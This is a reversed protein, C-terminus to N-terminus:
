KIEFDVTIYHETGEGPESTNKVIRYKGPKLKGYLWKWNINMELINNENVYYGQTTWAYNDIIPKLAEWSSDIFEDIRYSVGYINNKSSVDKIIITAGENTLTDEKINMTVGDLDNMKIICKDTLSNINKAVFIDKIGDYSNCVITYFDKNGFINKASSYKYLKSGGDNLDSVFDLKSIFDDITIKNHAFADHLYSDYYPVDFTFSILRGDDLTHGLMFKENSKSIQNNQSNCGTFELVIIGCILIKLIKKIM